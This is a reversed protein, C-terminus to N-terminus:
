ICDGPTSDSSFFQHHLICSFDLRSAPLLEDLPDLPVGTQSFLFHSALIGGYTSGKGSNNSIRRAIQAGVSYSYDRDIIALMVTLDLNSSTSTNERALVRAAFFYAFYRVEPFQMNANKSLQPGQTRTSSEQTSNM